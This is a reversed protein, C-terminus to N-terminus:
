TRKALHRDVEKALGGVTAIPQVDSGLDIHFEEELKLLLDFTALSDIGLDDLRADHTVRDATLDFEAMLMRQVIELTNM